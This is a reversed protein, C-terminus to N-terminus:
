LNLTAPLKLTGRELRKMHCLVFTLGLCFYPASPSRPLPANLVWVVLEQAPARAKETSNRFSQVKKRVARYCM